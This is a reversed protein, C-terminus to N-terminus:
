LVVIFYFSTMIIFKSVYRRARGRWRGDCGGRQHHYGETM